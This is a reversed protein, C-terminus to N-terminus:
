AARTLATTGTHDVLYRRGLPSRWLYIGPEPMTYSWGGHTKIRHHRRCLGALKDPATQGPPGGEDPSQYAKIHDIDKHRSLNNCWPFPCCANRLVVTETMRDPVEYADVGVRDDLDIVPKVVVDSRGLWERVLDAPVPGLGEARAVGSRGRLVEEHLHLYLTVKPRGGRTGPQRANTTLAADDTLLDLAGQPDAVVGVARARRVDRRGEDGLRALAEAIEEITNDFAAADLADAEIRISRTGDTMEDGVWVGREDAAEKARTAAAEPDFRIMAAEVLKVVRGIGVKHAFPAVQADVWAAAERSLCRTRQAIVRGRWAQLSGHHIRTWLRPLRFLLELSDGILQQAAFTSMGLAAGLDAPAFEAVEPTGPGALRMLREMGRVEVRDPEDVVAHLDAWHAAIALLDAEARDAIRRRDVARALAAPADLDALEDFM